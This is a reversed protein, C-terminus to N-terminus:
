PNNKCNREQSAGCNQAGRFGVLRLDGSWDVRSLASGTREKEGLEKEDNGAPRKCNCLFSAPCNM